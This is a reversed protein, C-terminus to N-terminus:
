GHKGDSSERNVDDGAGRHDIASDDQGGQQSPGLMAYRAFDILGAFRYNSDVYHQIVYFAFYYARCSAWICILLLVFVDWQPFRFLLMGAAIMALVVFLAGKIYLWRASQIDRFLSM